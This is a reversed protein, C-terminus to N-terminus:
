SFRKVAKILGEPTGIDLYPEDSVPIGDVRLGARLAAQIVGGVSLEPSKGAAASHGAFYEHLFETFVPAWVAVDWSYRLGTQPPQIVLDRVRGNEDVQVMDMKSPQDAPFLGLVVDADSAEQRSLLDIFVSRPEILIDPFGFAIISNRVFPYATDLTYPAGYPLRAILYPLHM